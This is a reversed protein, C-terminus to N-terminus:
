ERSTFSVPGLLKIGIVFLFIVSTRGSDLSVGLLFCNPSLFFQFSLLLSKFYEKDGDEGSISGLRRETVSEEKVFSVLTLARTSARNSVPLTAPSKMESFVTFLNLKMGM